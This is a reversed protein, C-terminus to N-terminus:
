AVENEILELMDACLGSRICDERTYRVIEIAKNRKTIQRVLWSLGTEKSGLDTQNVDGSIFIKSNTGARTLFMKMEAVSTNQAEDLLMVADDFTAGRMYALPKALIRSKYDCKFKNSGLRDILGAKFPELYPAFKDDIDGPLYGLKPGVEVPPRSMIIRKVMGNKYLEAAVAASLYTKGTGASGISIVIDDHLLAAIHIAQGDTLPELKKTAAPKYEYELSEGTTTSDNASPKGRQPAPNKSARESDRREKRTERKFRANSSM